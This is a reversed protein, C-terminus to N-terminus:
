RARTETPTSGNSERAVKNDMAWYVGAQDVYGDDKMADFNPPPRRDREEGRLRDWLKRRNEMVNVMTTSGERAPGKTVNVVADTDVYIRHGLHHLAQSFVWDDGRWATPELVNFIRANFLMASMAAWRVPKLGQRPTLHPDCLPAIVTPLKPSSDILLPFVVPRDHALLRLLTDKELLADNDVMFVWEMGGDLALMSAQWRMLAIAEVALVNANGVEHYSVSWGGTATAYMMDQLRWWCNADWLNGMGVVLVSEPKVHFQAYDWKPGLFQKDQQVDWIRLYCMPHSARDIILREPVGAEQLAQKRQQLENIHELM